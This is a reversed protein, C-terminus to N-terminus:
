TSVFRFGDFVGGFRTDLAFSICHQFVDSAAIARALVTCPLPCITGEAIAAVHLEHLAAAQAIWGPQRFDDAPSLTGQRALGGIGFTQSQWLGPSCGIALSTGM